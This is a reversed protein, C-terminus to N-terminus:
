AGSPPRAAPTYACCGPACIIGAADDKSRLREQVLEGMMKAFNQNTGATSTRVFQLDLERALDKAETDLDYLIEMHDSIFGVPHVLIQKLSPKASKIQRMYDCIDPELWPQTPPGSRSQYVLKYHKIGLRSVIAEITATLQKVYDCNDAMSMPISHATFVVELSDLDQEGGQALQELGAKVNEVNAQVFLPHNYYSPLKDIQLDSTDAEIKAKEIDELYQRCGSYSSYASTVFTLARKIGDAQMKKVTDALLPHWNRNGWYV